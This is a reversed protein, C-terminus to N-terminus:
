ETCVALYKYQVKSASMPGRVMHKVGKRVIFTAPLKQTHKIVGGPHAVSSCRSVIFRSATVTFRM